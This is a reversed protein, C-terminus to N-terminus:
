PLALTPLCLQSSLISDVGILGTPKLQTYSVNNRTVVPSLTTVKLCLDRSHPEGHYCNHQHRQYKTTQDQQTAHQHLQRCTKCFFGVRKQIHMYSWVVAKSKWSSCNDATHCKQSVSTGNEQLFAICIALPLSTHWTVQALSPPILEVETFQHSLSIHNYLYPLWFFSNPGPFSDSTLLLISSPAAEAAGQLRKSSTGGVATSGRVQRLQESINSFSRKCFNWESDYSFGWGASHMPLRAFSFGNRKNSFYM